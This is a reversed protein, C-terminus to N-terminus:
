VIIQDFREANTLQHGADSGHQAAAAGVGTRCQREPVILDIQLAADNYASSLFQLESRRFVLQKEVEQLIRIPGQRAVRYQVKHPPVPGERVCPRYVGVDYFKPLLQLGIRNHRPVEKRKMANTIT